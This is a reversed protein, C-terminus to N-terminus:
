RELTGCKTECWPTFGMAHFGQPRQQAAGDEVTVRRRPLGVGASCRWGPLVICTSALVRLFSAEALSGHLAEFLLWCAGHWRTPRPTKSNTQGSRVQGLMTRMYSEHHCFGDDVVMVQM